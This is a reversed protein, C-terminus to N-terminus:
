GATGEAAVAHNRRRSSPSGDGTCNPGIARPHHQAPSTSRTLEDDPPRKPTTLLPELGDPGRLLGYSKVLLKIPHATPKRTGQEMQLRCASCETAGAAGDGTETGTSM